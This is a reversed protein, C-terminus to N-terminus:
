MMPMDAGGGGPAGGEMPPAEPAPPAMPPADAGTAAPPKSAAARLKEDRQMMMLKGTMERIGEPTTALTMPDMRYSAFEGGADIMEIAKMTVLLTGFIEAPIPKNWVGGGRAAEPMEVPPIQGNSLFSVTDNLAKTLNALVQLPIPRVPQPAAKGVEAIRKEAIEVQKDLVQEQAQERQVDPPKSGAMHPRKDSIPPKGKPPMSKDSQGRLNM